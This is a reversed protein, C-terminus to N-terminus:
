VLLANRYSVTKVTNSLGLSNCSFSNQQPSYHIFHTCWLFFLDRKMFYVIIPMWHHFRGCIEMCQGWFTGSVLFITIRHTSFGPVCDIKVGASPISWSHIVDKSSALIHLRIEIPMAIAGTAHLRIMNTVGKKMPRYQNKFLDTNYSNQNTNTVNLLYFFLSNTLLSTNLGLNEVLTNIANKVINFKVLNINQYFVDRSVETSFSSPDVLSYSSKVEEFLPNSPSALLYKPLNITYGKNLFYEKYIYERKTLLNVLSGLNYNYGATGVNPQWSSRGPTSIQSFSPTSKNFSTFINSELWYSQTLELSIRLSHTNSNNSLSDLLINNSYWSSIRSHLYPTLSWNSMYNKRARSLRLLYNESDNLTDGVRSSYEFNKNLYPVGLLSYRAVSSPQVEIWNWRSHWDFWLHRSSDSQNSLLFPIDTFYINLSNVVNHLNSFNPIITSNYNVLKFFSEKNKGLLSEYKTKKESLFPYKVFANSIDQLRANSRGEDFRSRFVKQLANYTVISNKATSRLKLPNSLRLDKGVLTNVYDTDTTTTSPELSISPEEGGSRFANLVQTYSSPYIYNFHTVLNNLYYSNHTYNVQKTNEYSDDINDFETENIFNSFNNMNLLTPNSVYEESFVPLTNINDLFSTNKIFPRDLITAKYLRNSANFSKEQKNFYIFDKANLLANTYEDHTFSSNSSEWLSDELLELAQWNRFDYETYETIAPIASYMVSNLYYNNFRNRLPLDSKSWITNWYTNFIYNPASEERSSLLTAASDDSNFRDFQVGTLSLGTFSTPTHSAPFAVASSVTHAKLDNINTFHNNTKSPKFADFDRVSRDSTMITETSSKTKVTETGQTYVDKSTLSPIFGSTQSTLLYAFDHSKQGTDGYNLKIGQSFNFPKPTLNHSEAPGADLVLSANLNATKGVSDVCISENSNWKQVLDISNKDLNTTFTNSTSSSSNYNHQRFTGYASTNLLGSENGYLTSIKNYKLTFESNSNFLEQNNSKSFFQIKKFADSTQLTNAGLTNNATFNLIKSNDTPSLVLHAPTATFKSSKKSKFAEWLNNSRSVSDSTKTYKLSNGVMSSYTPNVNYNLDINKPFYYIWGWQYARISVVLEGTGFGDYYDTADVSESIIISAAWSVPVCATILDACKSRSVGRTERRPRTRPNCWRVVSIFTIFYLMILSIFMFWLWHQYHLIHIFWVEEHVFSPSAIFPEPYYLKFDPAGLNHFYSGDLNCALLEFVELEETYDPLIQCLEEFNNKTHSVNQIDNFFNFLIRNLDTDKALSANFFNWDILTNSMLEKVFTNETYKGSEILGSLTTMSGNVYQQVAAIDMM